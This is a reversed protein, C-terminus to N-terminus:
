ADCIPTSCNTINQNDQIPHALKTNDIPEMIIGKVCKVFKMHVCGFIKYYWEDYDRYSLIVLLLNSFIDINISTHIIFGHIASKTGNSFVIGAFFSILLSIITLITLKTIIQIIKDDNVLDNYVKYLKYIFLSCLSLM